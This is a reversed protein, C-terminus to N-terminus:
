LTRDGGLEQKARARAAVPHQRRNMLTARFTQIILHMEEAAALIGRVHSQFRANHVNLQSEFSELERDATPEITDLPAPASLGALFVQRQMFTERFMENLTRLEEVTELTGRVNNRLRANHVNLYSEFADLEVDVVPETPDPPQTVRYPRRAGKEGRGSGGSGGKITGAEDAANSNGRPSEGDPYEEPELTLDVGVVPDEQNNPSAVIGVKGKAKTTGKRLRQKGRPADPGNTGKDDRPSSLKQM